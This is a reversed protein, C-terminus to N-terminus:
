NQNVQVGSPKQLKNINTPPNTKRAYATHKGKDTTLAFALLVLVVVFLLSLFLM